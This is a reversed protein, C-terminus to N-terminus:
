RQENERLVHAHQDREDDRFEHCGRDSPQHSELDQRIQLLPERIFQRHIVTVIQGAINREAVAQVERLILHRILQAARGTSREDIKIAHRTM